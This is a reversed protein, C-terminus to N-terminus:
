RTLPVFGPTQEVRKQWAAVAPFDELHFGGEGAVHTYAFLAIDALSLRKGDFFLRSRLTAINPEHNHQEWRLDHFM